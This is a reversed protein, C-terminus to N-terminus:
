TPWINYKKNDSVDPKKGAKEFHANQGTATAYLDCFYLVGLCAHGLIQFEEQLNFEGTSSSENKNSIKSLITVSGKAYLMKCVETKMGAHLIVGNDVEAFFNNDEAKNIFAAFMEYFEDIDHRITIPYGETTLKVFEEKSLEM